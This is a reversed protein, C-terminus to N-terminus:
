DLTNDINRYDFIHYLVSVEVAGVTSPAYSEEEDGDDDGDDEEESFSLASWGSVIKNLMKEEDGNHESNDPVKEDSDAEGVNERIKEGLESFVRDPIAQFKFLCLFLYFLQSFQKGDAGTAM